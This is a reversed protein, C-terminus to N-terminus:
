GGVRRGRMHQLYNGRRWHHGYRKPGSRDGLGQRGMEDPVSNPVNRPQLVFRLRREQEPTATKMAAALEKDTAEMPLSLADRLALGQETVEGRAVMLKRKREWALHNQINQIRTPTFSEQWRQLTAALKARSAKAKIRVAALRERADNLAKEAAETARAAAEAEAEKTITNM